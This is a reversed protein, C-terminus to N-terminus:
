VPEFGGLSKVSVRLNIHMVDFVDAGLCNM